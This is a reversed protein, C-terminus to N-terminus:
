LQQWAKRVDAQCADQRQLAMVIVLQDLWVGAEYGSQALGVRAAANRQQSVLSGLKVQRLAHTQEPVGNVAGLEAAVGVGIVVLVLSLHATCLWGHSQKAVLGSGWAPAGGHRSQWWCGAKTRRRRCTTSLRPPQPHQAQLLQTRMWHHARASASHPQPLHGEHLCQHRLAHSVRVINHEQVHIDQHHVGQCLHPAWRRCPRSKGNETSAM